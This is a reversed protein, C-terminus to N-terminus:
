DEVNRHPCVMVAVASDCCRREVQWLLVLAEVAVAADVTANGSVAAPRVLAVVASDCCRKEVRQLLVLAGVAVAVAADVTAKGVVAM